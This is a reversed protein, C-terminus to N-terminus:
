GGAQVIPWGTHGFRINFESMPMTTLRSAHVQHAAWAAWAHTLCCSNQPNASACIELVPLAEVVSAVLCKNAIEQNM